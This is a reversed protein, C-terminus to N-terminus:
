DDCRFPPNRVIVHSGLERVDTEATQVCRGAHRAVYTSRKTSATACHPVEHRAVDFRHEITGTSRRRM